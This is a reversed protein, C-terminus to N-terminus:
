QPRLGRVALANDRRAKGNAIYSKIAALAAEKRQFFGPEFGISRKERQEDADRVVGDKDALKAADVVMSNIAQNMRAEIGPTMKEQTGYQEILKILEQGKQELGRSREEVEQVTKVTDKDAGKMGAAAERAMVERSENNLHGAKISNDFIRQGAATKREAAAAHLSATVQQLKAKAAPENTSAMLKEGRAAALELASAKALDAAALDDGAAQRAMSFLTQASQVKANAKATNAAVQAKQAEIDRDIANNLMVAARNVGDTGAGVSGLVLGLIGMVKDGTSRSAWFHGPDVTTDVRMAEQQARQFSAMADDTRQKARAEVDRRELQAAEIANAKAAAAEVDARARQKEVDAVAAAAAEAESTARAADAAGADGPARVSAGAPRAPAGVPAQTTAPPATPTAADATEGKKPTVGAPMAARKAAAAKLNDVTQGGVRMVDGVVPLQKAVGSAVDGLFGMAAQSAAPPLMSASAPPASVPAPPYEPPTAGAQQWEELVQRGYPSLEGQPAAGSPAMAPMGRFANIAGGRRRVADAFRVEGGRAYGDDDNFEIDSDGGEGDGEWASDNNNKDKGKGKGMSAITAAAQGSKGIANRLNAQNQLTLGANNLTNQWAAEQQARALAYEQARRAAVAGAFQQQGASQEMGRQRAADVAGASGHAGATQLLDGAPMAGRGQAQMAGALNDDAARQTMAPVISPGSGAAQGAFLNILQDQQGATQGYQTTNLITGNEESLPQIGTGTAKNAWDTAVQNGVFPLFTMLPAIEGPIEDDRFNRVGTEGGDAFHFGDGRGKRSQVARVFDAARAPADPGSLVSRPLVIEGPSLMAPVVDNREDDGFVPAKGPVKGGDSFMSGVADLVGQRTNNRTDAAQENIAQQAMRRQRAVRAAEAAQEIDGTAQRNLVDGLQGRADLQSRARLQQEDGVARQSVAGEANGINRLSSQYGAGPQSQGLARVASRSRNVADAFTQQWAGDGTAAQQQLGEILTGMRARQSDAAGTDLHSGPANPDILTPIQGISQAAGNFFRAVQDAQDQRSSEGQAIGAATMEKSEEPTVEGQQIISGDAWRWYGDEGLKPHEDGQRPM